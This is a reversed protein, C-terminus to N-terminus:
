DLFIFSIIVKFQFEEMEFAMRIGIRIQNQPKPWVEGKTPPYRPGPKEIFSGLIIPVFLATLIFVYRVMNSFNAM